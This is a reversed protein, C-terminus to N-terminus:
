HSLLIPLQTEAIVDHTVGGLWVERIHSHAYGGIALLDAHRNIAFVQLLGAVSSWSEMQLWHLSVKFGHHTLYREVEGAEADSAAGDRVMAVDITAGPQAMAILDHLVRNAEASAKWGFVVHRIKGLTRQEPLLLLPTGSSLLLTELTRRRLWGVEWSEIPGAVILDALHPSRRVDGPLWAVDDSFSSIEVPCKAGEVLRHLAAIRKAEELRLTEESAYLTLFPALGSSALPGPTLLLVKAHARAQEAIALGHRLFTACKDVNDVVIMLDKLM